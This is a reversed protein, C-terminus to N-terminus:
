DKSDKAKMRKTKRRNANDQQERNKETGRRNLKRATNELM